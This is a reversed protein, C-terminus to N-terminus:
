EETNKLLEVIYQKVRKRLVFARHEVLLEMWIEGTRKKLSM